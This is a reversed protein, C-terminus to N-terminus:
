KLEGQEHSSAGVAVRLESLLRAPDPGDVGSRFARGFARKSIAADVCKAEPHLWAGRGQQPM